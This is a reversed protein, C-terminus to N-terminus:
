TWTFFDRIISFARLMGGQAHLSKILNFIQRPRFYFSRYAFRRMQMIKEPTIGETNLVSYNQEFMRWDNNAIWGSECAEKYLASGPFPVACYFQAYDLNLSKVFRITNKITETTEGPFGLITHAVVGIGHKNAMDTANRVQETTIRKNMRDLVQQSGSEIGYGIMTCGAKKFLALMVDDVHDVRSNCVWNIDLDNRIIEEAVKCSFERNLTFSETWFLFDRIGLTEKWHKLEAVVREPKRLRVKKGYYIHDACFACGYNCGRGTAVLLFRKNSFPLLYKETKILDYAPYPLSDLDSLMQENENHIEGETNRYSIGKVGSCGSESGIARCLNRVVIEPENRVIFDINANLLLTERPLATGHIGIVATYIGPDVSKVHDATSLDSVISPTVANIVVAGPRFDAVIREVDKFSLDEVICDTLRVENGDERLAAACYALSLPTWIATWAGARQMCRGERVQRVGDDAPPNLLLVRL